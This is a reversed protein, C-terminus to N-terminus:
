LPHSFVKLTEQCMVQHDSQSLGVLPLRVDPQMLGKESLLAKIVVPNPNLTSMQHIWFSFRQHWQEQFAQDTRNLCMDMFIKPQYNSLVSIVGDAGMQVSEQCTEDDGSFVKKRGKIKILQQMREMDGTAEKIGIINEHDMLEEITEIPLNVGTRGPVNYIMIPVDAQCAVQQFHALQGLPQAKIYYPTVLLIADAGMSHYHKSQSIAQSTSLESVGVMVKIGHRKASQIIHNAVQDRESQDLLNAEATSGLALVWSPEFSFQWNLFLELASFDVQGNKDFPTVLASIVGHM